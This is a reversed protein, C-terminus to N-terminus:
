GPEVLERIARATDEPFRRAVWHDDTDFTIWRADPLEAKLQEAVSLPSIPDRTAWILLVPMRIRPLEASLDPVPAFIWAPNSGDGGYDPRWDRAGHRAMDVGAAAVSLVLHTVLEPYRLALQLAIYGGMSHGVVVGPRPLGRAIHDVLDDYSQIAPNAPVPGFGPLDFTHQLWSAPLCRRIPHWFGSLGAAGPILTIHTM